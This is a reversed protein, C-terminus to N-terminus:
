KTAQPERVLVRCLRMLGLREVNQRACNSRFNSCSRRAARSAAVGRVDACECIGPCTNKCRPCRPCPSVARLGAHIRPKRTGVIQFTTGPGLIWRPCSAERYTAGDADDTREPSRCGRDRACGERQDVDATLQLASAGSRPRPALSGLGRWASALRSWSCSAAATGVTPPAVQRGPTRAAQRRRAAYQQGVRARRAAGADAISPALARMTADVPAAGSTGPWRRRQASPRRRQRGGARWPRTL